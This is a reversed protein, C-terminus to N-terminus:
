ESCSKNAMGTGVIPVQIPSDSANTVINLTASEPAEETPSFKVAVTCSKGPGLNGNNCYEIDSFDGPNGSVDVFSIPGIQVKTSGNNHLIVAEEKKQCLKVNGFNILTPLATVQAQALEYAGIDCGSGQPRPVGRQDTTVPSGFADTCENAPAVPIANVAPSTSLLAITETPGGNNQLGSPSLGAAAVDNQDGPATLFSCSSDDSLNYGDSTATGSTLYCNGGNPESALLTGKLVLTGGALIGGGELYGCTCAVNGSFTSFSVTLTRESYIGGGGYLIGVNGSFTSNNVTLTGDNYIGGGGGDYGSYNGSVTSDSVTMTGGNTIGGGDGDTGISNDSVTSNSVEMTGENAIGGGSAGPEGGVTNGSVTSNSLTLTGGNDSYIGGGLGGGSGAFNDSIISNSVVMTGENCIGGGASSNDSDAGNESVTSNSVTLRGQNYIGGGCTYSTGLPPPVAFNGSVTSKSVTLTGENYIGGGSTLNLGDKITVGSITAGRGTVTFDVQFVTSANNGSIFLKAAGPGKITVNTAIELYGSTLTITAPYTLSFNITDGNAAMALAARLSGTGSDATSTVTYTTAWSPLAAGLVLLFLSVALAHRALKSPMRRQATKSSINSSTTSAFCSLRAFSVLTLLRAPRTAM